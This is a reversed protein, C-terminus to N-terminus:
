CHYYVTYSLKEIIEFMYFTLRYRFYTIKLDPTLIHFISDPM